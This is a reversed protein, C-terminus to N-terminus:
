CEFKVEVYTLCISTLITKTTFKNSHSIFDNLIVTLFGLVVEIYALLFNFQENQSLGSFTFSEIQFDM